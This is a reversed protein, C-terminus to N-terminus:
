VNLLSELRANQDPDPNIELEIESVIYNFITSLKKNLKIMVAFACRVLKMGIESGATSLM